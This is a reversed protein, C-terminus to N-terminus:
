GHSTLRARNIGERNKITCLRELGRETVSKLRKNRKRENKRKRGKGRGKEKPPPSRIHKRNGFLFKHRDTLATKTPGHKAPHDSYRIRKKEREGEIVLNIVGFSTGAPEGERSPFTIVLAKSMFQAQKSRKIRNTHRNKDKHGKRSYNM